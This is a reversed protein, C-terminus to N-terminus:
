SQGEDQQAWFQATSPIRQGGILQVGVLKRGRIGNYKAVVIFDRQEVSVHPDNAVVRLDNADPAHGRYYIVRIVDGRLVRDYAESFYYPDNLALDIPDTTEFTMVRQEIMGAIEKM